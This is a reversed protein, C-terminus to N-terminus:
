LRRFHFCRLHGGVVSHSAFEAHWLSSSGQAVLLFVASGPVVGAIFQHGTVVPRRPFLGTVGAWVSCAEPCRSRPPLGMSVSLLGPSPGPAPPPAPPALIPHRSVYESNRELVDLGNWFYVATINGCSQSCVWAM